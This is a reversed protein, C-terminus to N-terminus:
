RLVYMRRFYRPRDEARRVLGCELLRRLWRENGRLYAAALKVDLLADNVKM